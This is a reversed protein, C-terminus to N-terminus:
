MSTSFPSLPNRSLFQDRPLGTSSRKDHGPYFRRFLSMSVAPSPVSLLPCVLIGLTCSSATNTYKVKSSTIWSRSSSRHLLPELCIPSIRHKKEATGESSEVLSSSFIKTVYRVLRRRNTRSLTPDAHSESEPNIEFGLPPNQLDTNGLLIM